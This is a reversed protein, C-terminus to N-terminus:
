ALKGGVISSLGGLVQDFALTDICDFGTRMYVTGEGLTGTGAFGVVNDWTLAGLHAIEAEQKTIGGVGSKILFGSEVRLAYVWGGLLDRQMLAAFDLGANLAAQAAGGAASGNAAQRAKHVDRTTSVYGKLFPDDTMAQLHMEEGSLVRRWFHYEGFLRRNAQGGMAIWRAMEEEDPSPINRRKLYAVFEKALAAMFAADTRTCPPQFGGAAQIQEPARTDGRFTYAAVQEFFKMHDWNSAIPHKLATFRSPSENAVGGLRQSYSGIMGPRQPAAAPTPAARKWGYDVLNQLEAPYNFQPVTKNLMKIYDDNSDDHKPAEGFKHYATFEALHKYVKGPIKEECNSKVGKDGYKWSKDKDKGNWPVFRSLSPMM